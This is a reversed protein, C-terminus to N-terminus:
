SLFTIFIGRSLNLASFVFNYAILGSYLNNTNTIDNQIGAYSEFKFLVQKVAQKSSEKTKICEFILACFFATIGVGHVSVAM